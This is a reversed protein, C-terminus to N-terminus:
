AVNIVVKGKARGDGLYQLAEPVHELRYQRDIVPVIKGTECLETIALLDNQTRQVM